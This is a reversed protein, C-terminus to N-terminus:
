QFSLNLLLLSVFDLQDAVAATTTLIAAIVVFATTNVDATAKVIWNCAAAKTYKRLRLFIVAM